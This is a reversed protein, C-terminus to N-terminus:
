KAEEGQVQIQPPAEPENEVPPADEVSRVTARLSTPHRLEYVLRASGRGQEIPVTLSWLPDEALQRDLADEALAPEVSRLRIAPDAPRPMPEEIAISRYAGAPADIRYAITVTRTRKGWAESDRASEERAIRVREDRGLPVLLRAGPACFPQHHVGLSRGEVVVALPGGLLPGTLPNATDLVRWAGAGDAPAARLGIRGPLQFRDILVRQRRGATLSVAAIRHSAPWGLSAEALSPLPQRADGSAGPRAVQAYRYYVELALSLMAHAADEGLPYPVVRLGDQLETMRIQTAVCRDRMVNNWRAWGEGGSQFLGINALYPIEPRGEALWGPLAAIWDDIPVEPLPAALFAAAAIGAAGAEARDPHGRLEPLVARLAALTASVDLGGAQASKTALACWYLLEPGQMPGRRYLASSLERGGAIRQGLTAQTATAIERLAPDGTMAWAENLAAALLAHGGLDTQRGQRQQLWGIALKVLNRYKSPSKHDYGAGLMALTCLATSHLQWPGHSWSGDPNQTRKFRRNAADVASESGKSGGYAGISRRRAKGVEEPRVEDGLILEPIALAPMALPQAPDSATLELPVAMGATLPWSSEGPLELIAERVWTTVGGSVEVRHEPAWGAGALRYSLRVARGAAGPLPLEARQAAPPRAQERQTELAVLRARAAERADRGRRARERAADANRGVFDAVARQLQGVPAVSAGDGATFPFGLAARAIREQLDAAEIVAQAASFAAEAAALDDHWAQDMRPPEPVPPLRLRLAPPSPMGDIVARLADQDLGIPLGGVVEDGPPLRGEHRVEVWGPGIRVATVPLEVAGVAAALLLLPGPRM